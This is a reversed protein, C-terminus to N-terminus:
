ASRATGARARPRPRRAADSEGVPEVRRRGRATAAPAPSADPVQFDEGLQSSTRSARQRRRQQRHHETITDYVFSVPRAVAVHSAILVLVIGLLGVTSLMRSGSSGVRPDRALRYADVVAALRYLLDIIIAGYVATSM